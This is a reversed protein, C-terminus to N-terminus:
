LVQFYGSFSQLIGQASQVVSFDHLWSSQEGHNLYM